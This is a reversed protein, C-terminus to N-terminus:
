VPICGLTRGQYRVLFAAAAQEAEDIREGQDASSDFTSIPILATM